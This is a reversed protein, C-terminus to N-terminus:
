MELLWIKPFCRIIWMGLVEKFANMGNKDVLSYPNLFIINNLKFAYKIIFILFILFSFFLIFNFFRFFYYSTLDLPQFLQWLVEYIFIHSYLHFLNTLWQNKLYKM